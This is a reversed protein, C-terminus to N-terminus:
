FFRKWSKKCWMQVKSSEWRCVVISMNAVPRSSLAFSPVKMTWCSLKANCQHTLRPLSNADKEKTRFMIKSEPCLSIKRKVVENLARFDSVWRAQGDKKPIIFTPAAWEAAGCHELAGIACLCELKDKFVQGHTKTVLHPKSHIPKANPEIELHVKRHPHKGPAGDFLKIFKNLVKGLPEQQQKNLHKQQRAVEMADVEECKAHKINTAPQEDIEVDNDDVEEEDVDMHLSLCLNVPDDWFGPQKMDLAHKMWVKKRTSLQPDTGLQHLCDRDLMVDHQSAPSDFVIAHICEIKKSRSFKPLVCDELRVGTTAKFAGAATTGIAPADLM